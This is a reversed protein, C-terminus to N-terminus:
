IDGSGCKECSINEVKSFLIEDLSDAVGKKNQRDLKKGKEKKTKEEVAGDSVLEDISINLSKAISVVTDLTPESLNNELEAITLLPLNLKEGLEVQSMNNRTRYEIIGRGIYM